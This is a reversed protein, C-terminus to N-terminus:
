LGEALLACRLRSARHLMYYDGSFLNMITRMTPLAPVPKILVIQSKSERVLGTVAGSSGDVPIKSVSCVAGAVTRDRDCVTCEGLYTYANCSLCAAVAGRHTDATTRKPRQLSIPVVVPGPVAQVPPLVLDQVAIVSGDNTAIGKSIAASLWVEDGPLPTGATKRALAARYVDVPVSDVSVAIDGAAVGDAAVGDVSIEVIAPQVPDAILPFEPLWKNEPATLSLFGGMQVFSILVVTRHIHGDWFVASGVTRNM